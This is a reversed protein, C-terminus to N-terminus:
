RDEASEAADGSTSPVDADGGPQSDFATAGSPHSDFRRWSQDQPVGAAKEEAELEAISERLERISEEQAAVEAQLEIVTGDEEAVTASGKKKSALRRDNKDANSGCSHGPGCLVDAIQKGILKRKDPTLVALLRKFDEAVAVEPLVAEEQDEETNPRDNHTSGGAGGEENNGTSSVRSRRRYEGQTPEQVQPIHNKIASDRYLFFCPYWLKLAHEHNRLETKLNVQDEDRKALDEEVQQQQAAFKGELEAIVNQMQEPHSRRLEQLDRNAAGLVLQVQSTKEKHLRLSDQMEHLVRDFLEVYTRWIKELAMGREPCFHTVQRVIEHLAVSLIPVLDDVTQALDDRCDENQVQYLELSRTIWADLMIADTRSSPTASPFIKTHWLGTEENYFSNSDKPLFSTECVHDTEDILSPPISPPLYADRDRLHSIDHTRATKPATSDLQALVPRSAVSSAFTSKSETHMHSALIPQARKNVNPELRPLRSGERHDFGHSRQM